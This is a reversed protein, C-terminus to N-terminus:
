RDVSRRWHRTVLSSAGSGHRVALVPGLRGRGAPSIWPPPPWRLPAASEHRRVPQRLWELDHRGVSQATLTASGAVYISTGGGSPNWFVSNFLQTQGTSFNLHHWGNTGTNNYFTSGVISLKSLSAAFLFGFSTTNDRVVLDVLRMGETTSVYLGFGSFRRFTLSALVSGRYLYWASSAGACDIITTAAGGAGLILVRPKSASLNVNCNTSGTYTGPAVLIIQFVGNGLSAANVAASINTFDAGGAANVVYTPTPQDSDDNPDSSARIEFVNPYRDGDADEFGDAVTPDFGHLFEELDLIGDAEYDGAGNRSLNGFHTTEWDDEMGDSDTDVLAQIRTAIARTPSRTEHDSCSGLLGGAAWLVAMARLGVRIGFTSESRDAFTAM